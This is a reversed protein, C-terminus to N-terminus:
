CTKDGFIIAYVAHNNIGDLKLVSECLPKDFGGIDCTGIGYSTSFLHIAEAILGVEILGLSLALEGYKQYVKLYDFSFLFVGAMNKFDIISSSPFIKKIKSYSDIDVVSLKGQIPNLKYFNKDLIEINHAYLFIDIPYLGGGSSINRHLFGDEENLRSNTVNLLINSITDFPITNGSFKRISKRKNMIKSIESTKDTNNLSIGKFSEKFPETKNIYPYFDFFSILNMVDGIKQTQYNLLYKLGLEEINEVLRSQINSIPSIISSNSSLKDICFLKQEIIESM